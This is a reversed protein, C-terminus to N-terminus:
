SDIQRGANMLKVLIKLCMETGAGMSCESYSHEVDYVSLWGPAFRFEM